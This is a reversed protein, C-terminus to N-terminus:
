CTEFRSTISRPVDAKSGTLSERDFSQIQGVGTWSADRKRREIAIM